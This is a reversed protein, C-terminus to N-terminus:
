PHVAFFGLTARGVTWVSGEASCRLRLGNLTWTPSASKDIFTWIVCQNHVYENGLLNTDGYVDDHSLIFGDDSPDVRAEAAGDIAATLAFCAKYDSGTNTFEKVEISAFALVYCAKLQYGAAAVGNLVGATQWNTRIDADSFSGFPYIAPDITVTGSTTYDYGYSTGLFREALHSPMSRHSFVKRRLTDVTQANVVTRVAEWCAEIEAALIAAGDELIVIAM